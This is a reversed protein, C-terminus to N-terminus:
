NRRSTCTTPSGRVDFACGSQTSTGDSRNLGVRHAMWRTLQWRLLRFAVRGHTIGSSAGRSSHESRAPPCGGRVVRPRESSVAEVAGTVQGRDALDVALLVDADFAPDEDLSSGPWPRPSWPRPAPACPPSCRRCSNRALPQHAPGTPTRGEGRRPLGEPRHLRDGLVYLSVLANPINRFDESVTQPDIELANDGFHAAFAAAVRDTTAPDNIM